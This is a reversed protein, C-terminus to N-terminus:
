QMAGHDIDKCSVVMAHATDEELNSSGCNPCTNQGPGSPNSVGGDASWEMTLVQQVSSRNVDSTLTQVLARAACHAPITNNLGKAVQLPQCTLVVLGERPCFKLRRLLLVAM